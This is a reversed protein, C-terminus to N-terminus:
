IGNMSASVSRKIGKRRKTRNPTRITHVSGSMSKSRSRSRSRSRSKSRSRKRTINVLREVRAPIPARVNEQMPMATPAASVSVSVSAAASDSVRYNRADEQAAKMDEVASKMLAGFDIHKSRLNRMCLSVENNYLVDYLRFATWHLSPVRAAATSGIRKASDTEFRKTRSFWELIWQVEEGMVDFLTGADRGGHVSAKLLTICVNRTMKDQEEAHAKNKSLAAEDVQMYHDLDLELLHSFYEDAPAVNLLKDYVGHIFKKGFAVDYAYGMYFLEPLNTMLFSTLFGPININQNLIRVMADKTMRAGGRTPKSGGRHPVQMQVAGAEEQSLLPFAGVAAADYGLIDKLTQERPEAQSCLNQLYNLRVPCKAAGKPLFARYELCFRPAQTKENVYFPQKKMMRDDITKRFEDLDAAQIARVEMLIDEARKKIIVYISKLVRVIALITAPKYEEKITLNGFVNGASISVICKEISNLVTANNQELTKLLQEKMFINSLQIQDAGVLVPYFTTLTGKKETLVCSVGNVLSRLWVVSDNTTIATRDATLDRTGIFQKLWLVQLTDGLEKLLVLFKIYSLKSPETHHDYIYENKNENSCHRAESSDPQFNSSYDIVKEEYGPITTKITKITFRYKPGVKGNFVLSQITGNMDLEKLLDSSFTSPENLFVVKDKFDMDRPARDLIAAPTLVAKYSSAIDQLRPGADNALFVDKLRADDSGSASRSLRVIEQKNTNMIGVREATLIMNRLIDKSDGVGPAREVEPPVQAGGPNFLPALVDRKMFEGHTGATLRVAKEDKTWSV